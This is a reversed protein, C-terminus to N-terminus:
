KLVELLQHSKVLQLLADEYDRRYRFPVAVAEPQGQYADLRIVYCETIRQEYAQEFLLCVAALRLWDETYVKGGAKFNALVIGDCPTAAVLDVRGTLGISTSSIEHDVHLAKLKKANFWDYFKATCTRAQVAKDLDYGTTGYENGVLFAMIIRRAVDGVKPDADPGIPKGAKGQEYAWKVLEPKPVLALVDAVSPLPATIALKNSPSTM